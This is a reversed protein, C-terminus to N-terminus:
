TEEILRMFERRNMTFYYQKKSYREVIGEIKGYDIDIGFRGAIMNGLMDALPELSSRNLPLAYEPGAEGLGSVLSPGNFLAGKAYWDVDLSPVSPPNLSFKGSISFHPMQLKPLSWEFDFFGKIKQIAGDVKEKAWDMKENIGNKIDDFKQLGSAKLDDFGQIASNKMETAKNIAGTKLDEFGQVASDKLETVKNIAGSKLDEFGQVVGDALEGAKEKVTDWNQWLLVGGAVVAAFIGVTALLPINLLAVEGALIPTLASAISTATNYAGIGLAIGGILGGLVEFAEANETVFGAFEGIGDIVDAIGEGIAEFDVNDSISQLAPLLEDQIKPLAGSEIQRGIGSIASGLDDYKIDNLDELASSTLSIEGETDMLSQVATEGLDEWMTGMLAQGLQYREQEDEVEMLSEIVDQMAEGATEGSESLKANMDDVNYGLEELAEAASGDQWRIHYEKVADGLKDISWTGNEAGNALMNFMDEASYGANAFQVSYENITDLLDDNQDLGNQAGQVMLNFAEDSTIGFQNIMSNAARISETVDWGFTDRLLIANETTNKLEDGTQGTQQRVVAMSDAIDELGDGFNDVYIDYMIDELEQMEDAAAGTKGQLNNLAQKGTDAKEILNVVADKIRSIGEIIADSALNAKLLDGFSIAKDGANNMSDGLDEVAEGVDEAESSQQKLEANCKDIENQLKQESRMSYNLASELDKAEKSDDGFLEKAKQLKDNMLSTRKQTEALADSLLSTRESLLQTDGSAGKLKEANLSLQSNLVKIENQTGKLGNNIDETEAVFRVKVESKKSAM